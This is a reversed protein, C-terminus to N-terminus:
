VVLHGILPHHSLFQWRLDCAMTGQMTWSRNVDGSFKVLGAPAVSLRQRYRESLRRVREWIRRPPVANATRMRLAARIMADFQDDPVWWSDRNRSSM